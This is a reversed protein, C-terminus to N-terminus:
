RDEGAALEVFRGAGLVFHGDVPVEGKLDALIGQRHGFLYRNTPGPPRRAEVRDPDALSHGPAALADRILVIAKPGVGHLKRLDAETVAALQGLRTYGAAQLARM